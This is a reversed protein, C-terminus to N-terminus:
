AILFLFRHNTTLREIIFLLKLVMHPFFPLSVRDIWRKRVTISKALQIVIRAAGNVKPKRVMTITWNRQVALLVVERVRVLVHVHM